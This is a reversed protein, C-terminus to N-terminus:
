GMNNMPQGSSVNHAESVTRATACLAHHQPRYESKLHAFTWQHMRNFERGSKDMIEEFSIVDLVVETKKSIHPAIGSIHSGLRGSLVKSVSVALSCRPPAM